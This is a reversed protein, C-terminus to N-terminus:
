FEVKLDIGSDYGVLKGGVPMFDSLDREARIFDGLILMLFM